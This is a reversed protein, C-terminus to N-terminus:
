LRREPLPPPPASFDMPHVSEIANRFSVEFEDDSTALAGMFGDAGPGDFVVIALNQGDPTPQYWAAHTTLGRRDNMADFQAKNPGSLDACWAEWEDLKGDKIPVAMALM